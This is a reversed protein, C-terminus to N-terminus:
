FVGAIQHRYARSKEPQGGQLLEERLRRVFQELFGFFFCLFAVFVVLSKCFFFLSEQCFYDFSGRM